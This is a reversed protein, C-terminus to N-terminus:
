TDCGPTAIWTVDCKHFTFMQRWWLEASQILLRRTLNSWKSRLIYDQHLHHCLWEVSVKFAYNNHFSHTQSLILDWTHIRRSSCFEGTWTSVQRPDLWSRSWSIVVLGTWVRIQGFQLVYKDSNCFINTWVFCIEGFQLQLFRRSMTLGLVPDPGATIVLGTWVLLQVKMDRHDSPFLSYM